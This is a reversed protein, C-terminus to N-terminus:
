AGPTDKQGALREYEALQWKNRATPEIAILRRMSEAAKAYEGRAEYVEILRSLAWGSKPDRAIEALCNHILIDDDSQKGRLAKKCAAESAAFLAALCGTAFLHFFLMKRIDGFAIIALYLTSTIFTVAVWLLLNQPADGCIKYKRGPRELIWALAASYIIAPAYVLALYALVFM